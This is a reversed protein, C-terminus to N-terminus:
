GGRWRASATVHAIGPRAGIQNGCLGECNNTTCCWHYSDDCNTCYEQPTSCGNITNDTWLPLCQTASAQAFDFTRTLLGLVGRALVGLVRTSRRPPWFLLYYRWVPRVHNGCQREGQLVRPHQQRQGPQRRRGRRHALRHPPHHNGCHGRHCGLASQAQPSILNLRARAMSANDEYSCRQEIAHLSSKWAAKYLRGDGRRRAQQYQRRAAANGKPRSRTGYSPAVPMPLPVAFQGGPGVGAPIVVTM